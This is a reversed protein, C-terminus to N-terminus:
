EVVWGDASAVIESKRLVWQRWGSRAETKDSHRKGKNSRMM